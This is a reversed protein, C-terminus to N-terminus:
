LRQQKRQLLLLKQKEEELKAMANALGTKAQNELKFKINLINQMKYSFKVM